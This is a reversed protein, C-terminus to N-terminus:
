SGGGIPPFLEIINDSQIYSKMNTIQKGNMLIINIQKQHKLGLLNLLDEINNIKKTHIDVKYRNPEKEIEIYDSNEIKNQLTTHVILSVYKM